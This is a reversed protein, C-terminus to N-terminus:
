EALDRGGKVKICAFSGRAKPPSMARVWEVGARKCMKDNPFDVSVPSIVQGLMVILIWVEM